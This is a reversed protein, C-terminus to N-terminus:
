GTDASEQASPQGLHQDGFVGLQDAIIEVSGTTQSGMTKLPLKGNDFSAYHVQIAHFACQLLVTDLHTDM